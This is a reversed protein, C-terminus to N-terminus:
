PELEPAPLRVKLVGDELQILADVNETRCMRPGHPVAFRERAWALELEITEAAILSTLYLESPRISVILNRQSRPLVEISGLHLDASNFTSRTQRLLFTATRTELDLRTRIVDAYFYVPYDFGNEITLKVEVWRDTPRSVVADSIIVEGVPSRCSRSGILSVFLAATGLRFM